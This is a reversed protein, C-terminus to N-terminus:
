LDPGDVYLILKDEWQLASDLDNDSLLSSDNRKSSPNAPQPDRYLRVDSMNLRGGIKQRLQKHRMDRPVKIVIFEDKNQEDKYGIKVRLTDSLQSDQQQQM